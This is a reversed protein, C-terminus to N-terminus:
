KKEIELQDDVRKVGAVQRAKAVVSARESANKVPGRLTVVGDKTIIKVNHANMSLGDDDVVAKRIKATVDRDADSEGQDVPTIARDDRDRTNRGTNDADHEGAIVTSASLLAAMMGVLLLSRM